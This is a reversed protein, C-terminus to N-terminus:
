FSPPNSDLWERDLPSAVCNPDDQHELSWVAITLAGMNQTIGASSQGELEDPKCAIQQDQVCGIFTALLIKTIFAVFM